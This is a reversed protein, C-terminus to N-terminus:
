CPSGMDKQVTGNIESITAKNSHYVFIKPILKHTIHQSPESNQLTHLQVTLTM